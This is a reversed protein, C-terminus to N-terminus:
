LLGKDRLGAAIFGSLRRALEASAAFTLIPHFPRATLLRLFGKQDGKKNKFPKISVTHFVRFGPHWNIARGHSEVVEFRGDLRDPRTYNDEDDFFEQAEALEIGPQNIKRILKGMLNLDGKILVNLGDRQSFNRFPPRVAGTGSEPASQGSASTFRARRRAM